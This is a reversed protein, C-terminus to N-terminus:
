VDRWVLEGVMVGLRRDDRSAGVRSPVVTYSVDLEVLVHRGPSAAVPLPVIQWDASALRVVLPPRRDVWIRVVQPRADVGPIPGRLRLELIRGQVPVRMAARGRTWRAATGDLQREWRHFGAEYGPSVPRGLGAEVRWALLALGLVLATGAAGRSIRLPRTRPALAATAGALVFALYVLAPVRFTFQVLGYTLWGILASLLGCALVAQEDALARIRRFTRCWITGFFLVVSALGILGQEALLHLYLSHATGWFPGFGARLAAPEYEHFFFAYRGTGVGLLPHDAAMRLSATWLRVRNPDSLLRALRGTVAGGLVTLDLFVALGAIGGGALGLRVWTRTRGHGARGLLVALSAVAVLASLYAARQLTFILALVGLGAAVGAVCRRWPARELWLLVLVLPLVLVLWQALYDPNWAVATLRREPHQWTWFSLTLYEGATDLAGFFRLLGFTAVSGALGALPLLSGRVAPVMAPQAAVTFLGLALGLIGVRELYKLHAIDPVGQRLMLAWDLSPLLWLDELLDRLNLPLALVAALLCGLTLLGHRPRLTLRGRVWWALTGLLVGGAVVHAILFYPTKHEGLLFPTALVLTVLGHGPHQLVAAGFVLLFAGATAPEPIRFLAAAMALAALAGLIWWASRGDFPHAREASPSADM